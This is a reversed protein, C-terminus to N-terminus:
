MKFSKYITFQQKKSFKKYFYNKKIISVYENEVVETKQIKTRQKEWLDVFVTQRPDGIKYKIDAKRDDSKRNMTPMKLVGIDLRIKM